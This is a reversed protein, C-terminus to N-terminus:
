VSTHKAQEIAENAQKKIRMCRKTRDRKVIGKAKQKEVKCGTLEKQMEIEGKGEGKKKKWYLTDQQPFAESLESTHGSMADSPPVSVPPHLKESFPLGQPGLDM